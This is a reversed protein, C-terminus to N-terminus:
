GKRWDRVHAQGNPQGAEIGLVPENKLEDTLRNWVKWKERDLGKDVLVARMARVGERNREQARYFDGVMLPTRAAVECGGCQTCHVYDDAVDEVDLHGKELAIVNAHFATPTHNENRTVQM